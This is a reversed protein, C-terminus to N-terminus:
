VDFRVNIGYLMYLEFRSCRLGLVYCLRSVCKLAIFRVRSWVCEVVIIISLFLVQVAVREDKVGGYGNCSNNKSEIANYPETKGIERETYKM